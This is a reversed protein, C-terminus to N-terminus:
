MPIASIMVGTEEMMSCFALMPRVEIFLGYKLVPCDRAAQM